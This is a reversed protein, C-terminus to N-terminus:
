VLQAQTVWVTDNELRVSIAPSGDDGQYLVIQGSPQNNTFNNM